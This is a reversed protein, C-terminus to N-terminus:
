SGWRSSGFLLRTGDRSWAPASNDRRSTTFRRYSSGDPAALYIEGSPGDVVAIAAGGPTWAPTHQGGPAVPHPNSGDTNAVYVRTLGDAAHNYALQEGDPSWTPWWEEAPGSTVQRPNSGDANMIWIHGTGTRNSGYAIRSGDPSWVPQQEISDGSTLQKPASSGDANIVYIDGGFSDEGRQFVIRMGDPSWSPHRDVATDHTLRIRHTGDVDMVYIHSADRDPSGSGYTMRKGDPAWDPADAVLASTGVAQEDSGDAATTTLRTDDGCRPTHFACAAFHEPNSRYSLAANDARALADDIARDPAMGHNLMDFFAVGFARTQQPLPGSTPAAIGPATRLVTAVASLFPDSRWRDIPTTNTVLSNAPFFHTTGAIRAQQAPESLWAM